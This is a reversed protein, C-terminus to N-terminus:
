TPVANGGEGKVKYYALLLAISIFFAASYFPWRISTIFLMGGWIPGVVRALSSASQNIGMMKGQEHKGSRMSILGNVTPFTLSNGISILSTLAMLSYFDHAFTVAIYGSTMFVLGALLTRKEGIRRVIRGILFGQIIIVITGVMAFIIGISQANLQAIREGYLAYTAELASFGFSVIAFVLILTGVEPHKIAWKLEKIDLIKRKHIIREKPKYSEPLWILAGLFNVFSLGSAVLAPFLFGNSSLLGGIAPGFIFGLGFAMNILGFGRVRDKDDTLDAIYAHVTPLTAATFIGSLIRSFFLMELSTSLGFVLFSVSGGLLGVLIVPRRGIKDSLAGWIPSFLFQMLSFSAVFIGLMLGDAGYHEAAFPLIPIVMGFGVLDIFIALFLLSLQRKNQMRELQLSYFKYREIEAACLEM